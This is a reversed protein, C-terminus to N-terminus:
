DVSFWMAPVASFENSTVVYGYDMILGKDSIFAASNPTGGPTRLWSNSKFNKFISKYQQAEDISLLFLYDTTDNGGATGYTANNSSKVKTNIINKQEEATFAKKFFDTNLYQRLSSNEWTVNEPTTSFVKKKLANKKLLLVQNDEIDLIRWTYKGIKVLSGAKSHKLFQKLATVKRVDSDKYTGAAAFARKAGLYDKKAELDLGVHYQCVMRRQKSEKYDGTHNYFKLAYKYSDAKYLLTAVDYKVVPTVAILIIALIGLIIAGTTLFFRGTGKKEVRSSLRDCENAMEESDLYGSAKRFEEAAGRYDTANKAKNKKEKAGEYLSKLIEDNTQKALQKCLAVYDGSDKYGELESFKNATNAYIESKSFTPTMCELSKVMGVLKQYSQEKQEEEADITTGETNEMNEM